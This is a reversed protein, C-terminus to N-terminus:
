FKVVTSLLVDVRDEAVKLAVDLQTNGSVVVGAGTTVFV